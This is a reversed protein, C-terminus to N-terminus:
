RNFLPLIDAFTDIMATPNYDELNEGQNYGYTVAISEMGARSAALLDNKSDGVMVADEITINLERCLHLLPLPNPKKELLSEGGLYQEILEELGLRKLIPAVFPTPKNTIISLHYGEIKLKKLTSKVHLYPRTNDALHAQYHQLFIELAKAILAEDLTKDMNINASLARKVLVLAGNGVWPRITAEPFKPRNLDTLMLNLAQALDPVSDILTGDLDFIILQKTTFTGMKFPSGGVSKPIAVIAALLVMM